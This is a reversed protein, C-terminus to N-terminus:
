LDNTNGPVFSSQAPAYASMNLTPPNLAQLSALNRANQEPTLGESMTRVVNGRGDYQNYPDFGRTHADVGGVRSGTNVLPGDPHGYGGPPVSPLRRAM